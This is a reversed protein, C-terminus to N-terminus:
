CINLLISDRRFVYKKFMGTLLEETCQAPLNQVFLLANPPLLDDATRKKKKQVVTDDQVKKRKVVQGDLEQVKISPENAFQIDMPKEFLPFGQSKEMAETAAAVSDFSVFAQGRLRINRKLRIDLIKGFQGFITELAKKLKELKIKENLNRIYLTAQPNMQPPKNPRRQPKMGIM